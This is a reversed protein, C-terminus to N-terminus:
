SKVTITVSSTNNAPNPDPQTASVTATDTITGSHTPTVRIGVFATRGSPMTGLNGTVKGGAQTCSGQSPVARSYTLGAPLADTAVVGTAAAPGANHISLIYWYPHGVQFSDSFFDEA